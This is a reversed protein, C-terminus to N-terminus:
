VNPNMKKQFVRKTELHSIRIGKVNQHSDDLSQQHQWHLKAM